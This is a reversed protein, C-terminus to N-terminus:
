VVPQLLTGSAEAGKDAPEPNDPDKETKEPNKMASSSSPTPSLTDPSVVANSTCVMKSANKFM